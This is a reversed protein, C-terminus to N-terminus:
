DLAPCNTKIFRRMFCMTGSWDRRVGHIEKTAQNIYNTQVVKNGPVTEGRQLSNVLQEWQGWYNELLLLGLAEQGVLILEGLKMMGTAVHRNYAKADAHKIFNNIVFFYQEFAGNCKKAIMIDILEEGLGFSPFSGDGMNENQNTVLVTCVIILQCTIMMATCAICHMYCTGLIIQNKIMVAYESRLINMESKIPLVIKTWVTMFNKSNYKMFKRAQIFVKKMLEDNSIQLFQVKKSLKKCVFCKALKADCKNSGIMGQLGPLLNMYAFLPSETFSM